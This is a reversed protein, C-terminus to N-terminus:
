GPKRWTGRGLSELDTDRRVLESKGLFLLGGPQLQHSLRAIVRQQAEPTFYILVNRLFIAHFQGLHTCPHHLNAQEFRVRSRLHEKPQILGRFRGRGRQFHEKLLAQDMEHLRRARYRAASAQRVVIHSVDTGVVEWRQGMGLAQTLSVAASYAEEGTSCAASWVRVPGPWRRAEEGLTHFHEKERFFYTEHTTLLDVLEHGEEVHGRTYELYHAVSPLDLARMRRHVRSAVWSRDEGLCVGAERHIYERLHEWDLATM